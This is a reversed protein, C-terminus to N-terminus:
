SYRLLVTFLVCRGWVSGPLIQSLKSFVLFFSCIEFTYKGAESSGVVPLPFISGWVAPSIPLAVAFHRILFDFNSFRCISFFHQRISKSFNSPPAKGSHLVGWDVSNSEEPRELVNVLSVEFRPFSTLLFYFFGTFEISERKSHTDFFMQPFLGFQSCLGFSGRCYVM